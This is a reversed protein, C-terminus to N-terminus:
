KTCPRAGDTSQVRSPGPLVLPRGLVERPANSRSYASLVRTRHRDSPMMWTSNPPLIGNATIQMPAVLTIPMFHLSPRNRHCARPGRTSCNCSSILSTACRTANFALNKHSISSFTRSKRKPCPFRDTRVGHLIPSALPVPPMTTSPPPRSMPLLRASNTSCRTTPRSTPSSRTRTNSSLSPTRTGARHMPIM